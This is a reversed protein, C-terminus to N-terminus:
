NTSKLNAVWEHLRILFEDYPFCLRFELLARRVFLEACDISAERTLNSSSVKKSHKTNIFFYILFSTEFMIYFLANDGRRFFIRYESTRLYNYLPQCFKKTTRVGFKWQPFNLNECSNVFLDSSSKRGDPHYGFNGSLLHNSDRKPSAPM